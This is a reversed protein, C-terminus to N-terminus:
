FEVRLVTLSWQNAHIDELSPANDLRLYVPSVTIFSTNYRDLLTVSVSAGVSAADLWQSMDEPSSQDFDLQVNWYTSQVPAGTNSIGAINPTNTQRFPSISVSAGNLMYM